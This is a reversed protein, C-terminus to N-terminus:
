WKGHSESLVTVGANTWVPATAFDRHIYARYDPPETHGRMISRYFRARNILARRTRASIVYVPGGGGITIEAGTLRGYELLVNQEFSHPDVPGIGHLPNPFPSQM